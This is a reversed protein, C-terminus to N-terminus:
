KTVGRFIDVMDDGVKAARKPFTKEDADTWNRVKMGGLMVCYVPDTWDGDCGYVVVKYRGVEKSALFWDAPIHKHELRISM